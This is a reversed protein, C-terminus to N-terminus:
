GLGRTGDHAFAVGDLGERTPHDLYVNIRRLVVSQGTSDTVRVRQERVEGGDMPQAAGEATIPTFRLAGHERILSYAQRQDLTILLETTCFNRDAVWLESPQVSALVAPLLAREQTYADECPYLQVILQRDPDLVVLAKGPLPAASAERTEKLRHHRGGLANGDLIRVEVGPLWAHTPVAMEDMLTQSTCVSYHALQQLLGPELGNLKDYVAALSVGIAERGTQQYGARISPQQRFVVATMLDFLSSFLLKRSYQRESFGDFLANLVEPRFSHRLLSQAMVPLPQRDAFRQLLPSLTLPM